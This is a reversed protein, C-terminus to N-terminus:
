VYKLWKEVQDILEEKNKCIFVPWDPPKLFLRKQTDLYKESPVPLKKEMLNPLLQDDPLELWFIKNFKNYLNFSVLGPLFVLCAKKTSSDLNKQLQNFLLPEMLFDFIRLKHYDQYIFKWLKAFKLQGDAFAFEEGFYNFIQRSGEAGYKLLLQTEDGWDFIEVKNLDLDKLMGRKDSGSKGVIAVIEM